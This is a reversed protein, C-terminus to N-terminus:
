TLSILKVRDFKGNDRDIQRRLLRVTDDFNSKLSPVSRLANVIITRVTITTSSTDESCGLMRTVKSPRSIRLFEEHLYDIINRNRLSHITYVNDKIRSIYESYASNTTGKLENLRTIIESFLLEHFNIKKWLSFWRKKFKITGDNKIRFYKYEPFLKTLIEMLNKKRSRNLGLKSQM